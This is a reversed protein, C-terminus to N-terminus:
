VDVVDVCFVFNCCWNGGLEGCHDDVIFGEERAEEGCDCAGVLGTLFDDCHYDM